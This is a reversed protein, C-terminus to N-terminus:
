RRGAPMLAPQDEAAAVLEAVRVTIAQRAEQPLGAESLAEALAGALIAVQTEQLKVAREDLNLRALDTLIKGARDMAREFVIIRGDIQEAQTTYRLRHLDAVIGELVDLWRVVRGALRELESVPDTIPEYDTIRALIAEAKREAVRTAAKAKLAATPSTSRVATSRGRGAHSAM